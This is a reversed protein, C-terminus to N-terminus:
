DNMRAAPLDRLSDGLHHRESAGHDRDSEDPMIYLFLTKHLSDHVGTDVRNREDAERLVSNLKKGTVEDGIFIVRLFSLLILNIERRITSTIVPNISTTHM